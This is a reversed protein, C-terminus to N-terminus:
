RGLLYITGATLNGGGNSSIRLANFATTNPILYEPLASTNWAVKFTSSKNFAQIMTYGSRAATSSTSHVNISTQNSLAGSGATNFSQYDGSATLFTGGNDTSLQCTIIGAASKTILSCIVLIESYASLNIFDENANGTCARAEILTWSAGAGDAGRPGPIMLFDEPLDMEPLMFPFSPGAAGTAGTVGTPGVPGPIALPIEEGEPELHVFAPFPPGEPGIPGIAGDAGRVGPPGMEGEGGGEGIEIRQTIQTIQEITTGGGSGIEGELEKLRRILQVIVQRLAQDSQATQSTTLQNLLRDLDIAM